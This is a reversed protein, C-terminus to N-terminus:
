MFVVLCWFDLDWRSENAIPARKERRTQQPEKKVKKQPQVVDGVPARAGQHPAASNGDVLLIM